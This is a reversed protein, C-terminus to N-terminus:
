QACLYCWRLTHARYARVRKPRGRLLRTIEWASTPMHVCAWAYGVRRPRAAHPAIPALDLPQIPSRHALPYVQAPRQQTLVSFSLVRSCVCKALADSIRSGAGPAVRRSDNRVRGSRPLRRRTSTNLTINAHYYLLSHSPALRNFNNTQPKNRCTNNSDAPGTSPPNSRSPSFPLCSPFSSPKRHTSRDYFLM